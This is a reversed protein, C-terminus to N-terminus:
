KLDAESTFVVDVIIDEHATGKELCNNIASFVDLDWVASGDFWYGDLLEAPPFFGAISLSAYM